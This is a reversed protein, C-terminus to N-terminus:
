TDTQEFNNLQGYGGWASGYDAFAALSFSKQVPYRYELTSLISRNGWFRQNDYGRLSDTGGVFLQEFFPVTGTIAGFRTRFAITPRQAM